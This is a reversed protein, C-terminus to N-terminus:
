LAFAGAAVVAAAAIGYQILNEPVNRGAPALDSKQLSGDAIANITNSIAVAFSSQLEAEPTLLTPYYKLVSGAMEGAVEDVPKGEPGRTYGGIFYSILSNVILLM